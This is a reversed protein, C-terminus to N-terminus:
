SHNVELQLGFGKFYESLSSSLPVNPNKLKPNLFIQCEPYQLAKVLAEEQQQGNSLSLIHRSAMGRAEPVNLADMIAQFQKEKPLDDI